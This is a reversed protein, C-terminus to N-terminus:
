MSALPILPAWSVPRWGSHFARCNRGVLTIIVTMPNLLYVQTVWPHRAVAEVLALSVHGTMFWASMLLNQSISPTM